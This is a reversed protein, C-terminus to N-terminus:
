SQSFQFRGGPERRGAAVARPQNRGTALARLKLKGEPGEALAIAGRQADLVTVADNLISKLLDAEPEIHVLHHSARRLGRLREGARASAGGDLAVAELAQDWSSRTTGEVRIEDAVKPTGAPPTAALAEPSPTPPAAPAPGPELGSPAVPDAEPQEVAEVVVA